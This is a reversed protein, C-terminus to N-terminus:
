VIIYIEDSMNLVESYSFAEVYKLKINNNNTIPLDLM